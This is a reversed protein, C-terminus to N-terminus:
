KKVLLQLARLRLPSELEYLRTTLVLINQFSIKTLGILLLGVEVLLWYTLEMPLYIEM